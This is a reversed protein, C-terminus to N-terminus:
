TLPWSNGGKGGPRTWSTPLTWCRGALGIWSAVVLVSAEGAALQELAWAIGPRSLNKASVGEDSVFEVDGWGRQVAARDIAARQDALGLGSASQEETSVRVYALVRSSARKAM